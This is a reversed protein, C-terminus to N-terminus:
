QNDEWETDSPLSGNENRQAFCYRRSDPQGAIIGKRFAVCEGETDFRYVSVDRPEDAEELNGLFVIVEHKKIEAAM